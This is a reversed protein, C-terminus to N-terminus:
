SLVVRYPQLLHGHGTAHQGSFPSKSSVPGQSLSPLSQHPVGKGRVSYRKASSSREMSTTSVVGWTFVQAGSSLRAPPCTRVPSTFNEVCGTVRHGSSFTDEADKWDWQGTGRRTSLSSVQPADRTGDPWRDGKLLHPSLRSLSPLPNQRWGGGWGSATPGTQPCAAVSPLRRLPVRDKQRESADFDGGGAVFERM